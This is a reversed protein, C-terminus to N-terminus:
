NNNELKPTIVWRWLLLQRHTKKHCIRDFLRFRLADFAQLSLLVRPLAQIFDAAKGALTEIRNRGLPDASVEAPPAHVRLAVAGSHHATFVSFPLGQRIEHHADANRIPQQLRVLQASDGIQRLLVRSANGVDGHPLINL